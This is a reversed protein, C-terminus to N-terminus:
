AAEILFSTTKAVPRVKRASKELEVFGYKSMTNLTRSLNNPKRGTIEALEAVSKPQKQAITRLLARNEESLLCSASRISTFWIKPDTSKPKLRGSAIEITRKRIEEKSAIGIKIAKM